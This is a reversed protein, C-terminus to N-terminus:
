RPHALRPGARPGAAMLSIFGDDHFILYEHANGSAELWVGATGQEEWAALPDAAATLPPHLHALGGRSAPMSEARSPLEHLEEPRSSQADRRTRQASVTSHHLAWAGFWVASNLDWSQVM